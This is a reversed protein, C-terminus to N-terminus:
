CTGPASNSGIARRTEPTCNALQYGQEKLLNDRLSADVIQVLRSDLLKMTITDALAKTDLCRRKPVTQIGMEV